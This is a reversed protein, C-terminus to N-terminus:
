NGPPPPLISYIFWKPNSQYLRCVQQFHALLLPHKQRLLAHQRAVIGLWVAGEARLKEFAMISERDDEPLAMVNATAPPPPPFIWGRRQSYYLVIPDGLVTAMTVVLDRPQSIKRLALGLEYGPEHYPSSSLTAPRFLSNQNRGERDFRLFPFIIGLPVLVMVPQPAGLMLKHSLLPLYYNKDLWQKLGKGKSWVWNGHGAMHYPPYSHALHLAWLYYAVVPLLALVAVISIAALKKRNLRHRFRLITRTAYIMAFGVILGPLKTLLGWAGTVGFLLLFRLRDTQLYAILMWVSTTMLAVMVPDPLFSRDIFISLPLLAMVAASLLAHEEDWVRRVLQYLAFIGWLGFLAAM